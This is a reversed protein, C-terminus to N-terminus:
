MGYPSAFHQVVIQRGGVAQDAYPTPATCIGFGVETYAPKVINEKHKPSNMWGFLMQEANAYGYGLNEGAYHYSYGQATIFYWPTTGDPAYHEWYNHLVMHECKAQASRDLLQNETVPQLNYRAREVNTFKTLNATTYEVRLREAEAKQIQRQQEEYTVDQQKTIGATDTTPLEQANLAIAAGVGALTALVVFVIVLLLKSKASLKRM